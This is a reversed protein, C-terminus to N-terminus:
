YRYADVRNGDADDLYVTEGENNWVNKETWYIDDPPNNTGGQGSHLRVVQGPEIVFGGPFFYDDVLHEDDKSGYVHWGGVNVAADGQNAIEVYEVKGSNFVKVIVIKGTAAAPEAPATAATPAVAEPPTPIVKAVPVDDPIGDILFTAMWGGAGGALTIQVWDGTGDSAIIQVTDGKAATGVIAHDTGPGGRVNSSRNVISSPQAPTAAPPVPTDTPLAPTNTPPVPTPTNTATVSGVTATATPKPADTPEVAAVATPSPELAETIEEEVTSSGGCALALVVFLILAAVLIRMSTLSRM